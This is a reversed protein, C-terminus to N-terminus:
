VSCILPAFSFFVYHFVTGTFFLSPFKLVSRLLSPGSLRLQWWFTLLHIEICLLKLLNSLMMLTERWEEKFLYRLRDLVERSENQEYVENLDSNIM